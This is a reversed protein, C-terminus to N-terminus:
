ELAGHIRSLYRDTQMEHLRSTTREFEKVLRKGTYLSNIQSEASAVLHVARDYFEDVLEIFRRAQNELKWNLVPINSIMVTRYLNAIEIYDVKSRPGDCIDSFDFWVINDTHGITQISRGLIEVPGSDCTSDASWSDFIDQMSTETDSSLSDYYLTKGSIAQLRYDTGEGIQIVEMRTNILRIAAMFRDRQIGGLYLNDPKTNSTLVIAVGNEILAEFLGSLIVADGIDLVFFEDLCLLKCRKSFNRGIKELPDTTHRMGKLEGHISQMFRHFHTRMKLTTPVNNYFLDMLYTKGRGVGGWIYLGRISNTDRRLFRRSLWSRQLTKNNSFKASLRQLCQIVELQDADEQLGDKQVAQRYVEVLSLEM